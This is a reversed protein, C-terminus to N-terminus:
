KKHSPNDANPAKAACYAGHDSWSDPRAQESGHFSPVDANAQEQQGSGVLHCNSCLKSALEQGHTPDPANTVPGAFAPTALLLTLLLSLANM